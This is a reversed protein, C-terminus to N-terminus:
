AGHRGEGIRPQALLRETFELREETETLRAYVQEVEGSTLGRHEVDALRAELDALRQAMQADGAGTGELMGALAKGVPGRFLLYGMGALGMLGAIALEFGHRAAEDLMYAMFMMSAGALFLVLIMGLSRGFRGSV